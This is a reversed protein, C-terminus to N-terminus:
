TVKLLRGEEWYWRRLTRFTPWESATIEGSALDGQYWTLANYREGDTRSIKRITEFGVVAGDKIMGVCMRQPAEREWPFLQRQAKDQEEASVGVADTACLVVALILSFRIPRNM